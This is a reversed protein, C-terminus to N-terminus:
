TQKFRLVPESIVDHGEDDLNNVRNSSEIVHYFSGGIMVVPLEVTKYDPITVQVNKQEGKSAVAYILWERSPSVGLKRALTWVPWTTQLENPYPNLTKPDLNTTLHYWRDISAWRTPISAQFPHKRSINAVLEGQRWFRKLTENSHVRKVSSIVEELYPMFRSTPETASYRFERAVRPVTLWLNYQVWGRYLEPTYQVGDNEYVTYKSKAPDTAYGDWFSLEFWFEPNAKVAEDKALVYNMVELMTSWYRYATKPQSLNDYSSTSCGDWMFWEPSLREETTMSYNVWGGWRGMESMLFSNYGIFRTNEKWIGESFEDKMGAFMAQYREIWGDGFVQRKKEDTTESGYAEIFRKDSNASAWPLKVAENNSIIIVLPPNPYVQQIYQVYQDSAWKQGLDRWPTIPSLPSVNKMKTGDLNMGVGTQDIPLDVYDAAAYFDQEWQGGRLFAFPLNWDKLTKIASIESESTWQTYLWHDKPLGRPLWNVWPLLPVGEKIMEVQKSVPLTSLEWSAFLPLPRGNPDQQSRLAEDRIVKVIAPNEAQTPTCFFLSFFLAAFLYNPNM